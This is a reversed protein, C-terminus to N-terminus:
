ENTEGAPAPQPAQEPAARMGLAIAALHAQGWKGPQNKYLLTNVVHISFGNERCWASINIGNIRFWALVEAPTRLTQAPIETDM